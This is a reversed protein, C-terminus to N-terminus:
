LLHTHTQQQARKLCPPLSEQDSNVDADESTCIAIVLSMCELFSEEEEQQHM